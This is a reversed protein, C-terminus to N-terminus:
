EGSKELAETALKKSNEIATSLSEDGFVVVTVETDGKKMKAAFNYDSGYTFGTKGGEVEFNQPEKLLKNSTGIPFSAKGLPKIEYYTSTMIQHIIPNALAKNIIVAYEKPTSRNDPNIGTPEVFRTQKLGLEKARGNMKEIFQELTLDTGERALVNTANNASAMLSANLLDYARFKTGTRSLLAAGEVQDAETLTVVKNLNPNEELYVLATM